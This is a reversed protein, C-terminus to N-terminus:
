ADVIHRAPQHLPQPRNSEILETQGIHKLVEDRLPLPAIGLEGARDTDLALEIAEALLDIDHEIPDDLLAKCATSHPAFCDNCCYL